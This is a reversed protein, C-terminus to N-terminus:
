EEHLGAAKKVASKMDDAILDAYEELEEMVAASLQNISIKRGM